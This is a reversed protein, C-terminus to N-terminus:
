IIEEPANLYSEVLPTNRFRHIEQEHKDIPNNNERSGSNKYAHHKLSKVNYKRKINEIRIDTETLYPKRIPISASM